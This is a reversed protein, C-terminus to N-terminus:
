LLKWFPYFTFCLQVPNIVKKWEIIM